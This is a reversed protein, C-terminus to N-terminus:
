NGLAEAVQSVAEGLGVFEVAVGNYTRKFSLEADTTAVLLRAEPYNRSFALVGAPDLDSVSWACELGVLKGGAPACVFSVGHGQKDRWYRVAVAQTRAAIENLVHQEWLQGLDDSRLQTWGRHVCVFGTDFGYVKPAAIIEHPRRSSFPRVVLAVGTAELVALYKMVTGRSVGCQSTFQTAEFMEGSRAMVLEIFRQFPGRRELRFLEQADKAWYADMWEQFQKEPPAASMFHPPLGGHLFRHSLDTNGFDMVDAQVMPTLWLEELRGASTGSVTGVAELKAPGIALLKVEPFREEAVKLVASANHLQHVEDLVIRKGRLGGLFAEPDELVRRVGPLECDFYEVGGLSQALSTKGSRRPGWLWVVSGQQWAVELKGGWFRRNVM